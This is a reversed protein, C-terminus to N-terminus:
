RAGFGTIITKITKFFIVMDMMLSLNKIYFLDYSLKVDTSSVDDAYGQMVQAWGTIGPRVAHRFPYLPIDEALNDVFAKQEPRPGIMSMSGSLVNVLQPLEDIRLKRIVRGLSTIRADSATAFKAGKSEADQVMSRFKYMRFERGGEGVRRQVFVAPGKSELRIMVAVVLMLPSLIVLGVSAMLIDSLRKIVMYRRYPRLQILDAADVRRHNVRGTVQERFLEEPLVPIKNIALQTIVPAFDPNAIEDNTAIVADVARTPLSLGDMPIYDGTTMESTDVGPMVAFVSARSASLMRGLLFLFILGLPWNVMIFVSSYELRFVMVIVAALATLALWLPVIQASLRWASFRSLQALALCSLIFCLGLLGGSLQITMPLAMPTTTMVQPHMLYATAAM